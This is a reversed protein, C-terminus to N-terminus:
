LQLFHCYFTCLLAHLFITVRGTSNALPSTMPGRFCTNNQTHTHLVEHTDCQRPPVSGDTFCVGGDAGRQHLGLVDGHLYSPKQWGTRGHHLNQQQLCRHRLEGERRSPDRPDLLRVPALLLVHCAHRRRPSPLLLSFYLCIRMNQKEWLFCSVSSWM